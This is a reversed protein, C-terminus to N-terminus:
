EFRRRRWQDFIVVSIVVAGQIIEQWFSSVNLLNLGNNLVGTILAGVFSGVVGGDGGFLNTGGIVVAAISELELLNGMLANASNLRGTLLYGALGALLGSVVYTLMRIGDVNIGSIRAAERNGGVAYICRGFATQRLILYALAVTAVAILATVPLGFLEGNGIWRQEPPLANRAGEVTSFSPIPFGSTVVLAIGQFASLTGLTAIFDPIRGKTIILGNLLGALGGTLIAVLLGTYADLPGIRIGSVQIPQTMLVASVSGALAAASGVSLDIGAGLIVFTQGIALIAVVANRRLVNDVNGETLFFPSAFTMFAGLLLLAIIPGGQLLGRRVQESRKLATTGNARDPLSM